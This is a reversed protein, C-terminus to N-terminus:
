QREGDKCDLQWAAVTSFSSFYAAGKAFVQRGCLECLLGRFPSPECKVAERGLGTWLHHLLGDVPKQAFGHDADDLAERIRPWAPLSRRGDDDHTALTNM